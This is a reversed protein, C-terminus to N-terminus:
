TLENKRSLSMRQSCSGRTRMPLVRKRNLRRWDRYTTRLRMWNSRTHFTWWNRMGRSFTRTRASQRQRCPSPALTSHWLRRRSHKVEPHSCHQTSLSTAHLEQLNYIQSSSLRSDEGTVQRSSVSPPARAWSSQCLARVRSSLYASYM